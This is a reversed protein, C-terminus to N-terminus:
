KEVHVNARDNDLSNDFVQVDASRMEKSGVIVNDAKTSRKICLQFMSIVATACLTGDRQKQM